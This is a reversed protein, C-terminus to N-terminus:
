TLWFVLNLRCYLFSFCQEEGLVKGGILVRFHGSGQQSLSTPVVLAAKEEFKRPYKEPRIIHGRAYVITILTKTELLIAHHM